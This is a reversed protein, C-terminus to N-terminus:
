LGRVQDYARSVGVTVSVHFQFVTQLYHEHPSWLCVLCTRRQTHINAAHVIRFTAFTKSMKKLMHQKKAGLRKRFRVLILLKYFLISTAM